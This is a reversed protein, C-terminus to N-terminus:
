VSKTIGGDARIVSGTIYSAQRSALFAVVDGVEEPRGLRGAPITAVSEQEIQEISVGRRKATAGDITLLRDTRIRGPIVINATIGQAAVEASLTKSWGLVAGRIANSLALGPIPQEIGSSGITIIRGWGRAQMPPLLRNTLLFLHAAMAQFQRLWEEHAIATTPGPPPGGCNNVLVDVVGAEAVVRQVEAEQSLDAALVEVQVQWRARIGAATAALAAPDRAVLLVDMGEAALVEATARGIGKSGGTILARKGGLQLDM